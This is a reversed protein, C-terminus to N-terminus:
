CDRNWNQLVDNFYFTEPLPIVSAENSICSCNHGSYVWSCTRWIKYFIEDTRFLITSFIRQSQKKHVCHLKKQTSNKGRSSTCLRPRRRRATDTQGDTQGDTRWTRPSQRFSYRWNKEGVPLWVMRTKGYRVDHRYESPSGGLQPTM